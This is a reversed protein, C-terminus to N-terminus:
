ARAELLRKINDEITLMAARKEDGYTHHDYIAEVESRSSIHNLLMEKIHPAVGWRACNTSFTHRLTHLSWAPIDGTLEDLRKKCKSFGSFHTEENGKAPFYFGNAPTIDSLIKVAMPGVPLILERGNKTVESPLTITQGNHSFWAPRLGAMEGRRTGCLILLQVITGFPYGLKEAARWIKVLEEDSLVRKRSPRKPVEVGDLPNHKLLRRRVCWRLFTNVVVLAHKQETPTGVLKDTINTITEFEVDGLRTDGLKKLFHTEIIRTYDKVTRPKLRPLKQEQYTKWAEKFLVTKDKGIGLTKEALLEKAKTRAQALSIIGFRGLGQRRRNNKKGTLLFFAKTGKQSVRLGFGALADDFYDVQGQPPPALSRLAMDTFLLNAM